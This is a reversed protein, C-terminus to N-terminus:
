SLEDFEFSQMVYYKTVFIGVYGEGSGRGRGKMKKESSWGSRNCWKRRRRRERNEGVRLGGELRGWYGERSPAWWGELAALGRAGGAARNLGCEPGAGNRNGKGRWGGPGMRTGNGWGQRRGTGGAAEDRNGRERWDGPGMGDGNEGGLWCGGAVGDRTRTRSWIGGGRRELRGM